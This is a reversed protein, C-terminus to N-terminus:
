QFPWNGENRDQLNSLIQRRNRQYREQARAFESAKTSASIGGVIAAIVFVVGFLPFFFPAGMSMAFGIWVVGFIAAFVSGFIAGGGGGNPLSANGNRDRIMYQDRSLMWERDLQDLQEHHKLEEVSAEIRKTRQDIDDLVRSYAAGGQHFIELRAGCYSCSAFRTDQPIQLPAGCHNCSVSVAQVAAPNGPASSM